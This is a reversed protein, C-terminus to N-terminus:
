FTAETVEITEIEDEQLDVSRIVLPGFTDTCSSDGPIDQECQQLSVEYLGVFLGFIECSNPSMDSGVSVVPQGPGASGVIVELGGSLGNIFKIGTTPKSGQGATTFVVECNSNDGFDTPEDSGCAATAASSALLILVLCNQTFHDRM